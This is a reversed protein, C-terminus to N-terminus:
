RDHKGEHKDDHKDDHKDGHKGECKDKKDGDCDPKGLRDCRSKHFQINGRSIVRQSRLESLAGTVTIGFEDKRGPEGHDEVTVSFSCAPLNGDCTGSFRVTKPSGDANRAIVVVNSVPGNVHLGTVHNVYNFHGRATGDENGKANFGFTARGKSTPNPVPIQGGGTVKTRCHGAPPTSGCASVDTDTLTVAAQALAQGDLSGDTVTIAAGALINGLFFSDTLSAAEATWWFVNHCTDGGGAMVVSFSTGTLAGAGDTGIKFIWVANPDGNPDLTLTTRTFTVDAINCYVGPTLTLAQDTYVTNLLGTCPYLLPDALADYAAIFDAVVGPSVPAIIAGTITCGETQVVSAPDGSSGVDGTVLSATCSVAPGGLVAFGEASGLDPATAALAPSPGLLFASGMCALVILYKCKM